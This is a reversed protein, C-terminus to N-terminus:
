WWRPDGIPGGSMSATRLPSGAPLTFDTTTATWGLDITQNNAMQLISPFTIVPNLPDGTNLNFYNNHVFEMTSAANARVAVPLITQGPKPTNAVISNRFSYNVTNANADLFVYNRNGFGFSNITTQDFTVTPTAPVTMNTAWSILARAVDYFTTNLVELAKFELKDIMFYHYSGTGNAYAISNNVKITDIKHQNASARNGRLFCNDTNHVISNDVIVDTFTAAEGDSAVGTLNIFYDASAATGDWEIGKVRIGAGTGRLNNEKFNVKTNAPNGSKSQITITKQEVVINTFAGTSNLCDYTGPELGIVDGDDANAVATVLDDGPMLLVTFVNLEDTTFTISGKRATGRFIEATYTTLPTLGTILKENAAVDAASLTITTATGGDPTINITTLGTTPRWKLLVSTDKLDVDLINLFIQEGTIRFSSSYVWGSEATSGDANAKVRAFYDQMVLLVDDTIVISSTDVVGSFIPPTAFSSDTSVEVTYSANANTFLSPSWSLRAEIEGASINIDGPKFQRPLNVTPNFDERECGITVFSILAILFLLNYSINKM